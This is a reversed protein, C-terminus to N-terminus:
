SDFRDALCSGSLIFCPSSSGRGIGYCLYCSGIKSLRDSSVSPMGTYNIESSSTHVAKLLEDFEEHSM